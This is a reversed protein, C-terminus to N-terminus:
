LNRIATEFATRRTRTKSLCARGYLENFRAILRDSEATAADVDLTHRVVIRRIYREVIERENHTLGGVIMGDHFPVDAPRLIAPERAAEEPNVGGPRGIRGGAQPQYPAGRGQPDGRRRVVPRRGCSRAPRRPWRRHGAFAAAAGAAGGLVIAALPVLRSPLVAASNVAAMVIYIFSTMGELSLLSPITIPIM